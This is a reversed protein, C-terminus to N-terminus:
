CRAERLNGRAMRWREWLRGAERAPYGARMQSDVEDLAAELRLCTAARDAAARAISADAKAAVERSSKTAAAPPEEVSSTRGAGAAVTPVSLKLEYRRAAPGCPRDSYTVLGAAVCSYILRTTPRARPPVPETVVSSGSGAATAVVPQPLTQAAFASAVPQGLLSGAVLLRFGLALCPM